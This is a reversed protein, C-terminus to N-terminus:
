TFGVPLLVLCPVNSPQEGSHGPLDSSAHPLTRRLHIAAVPALSVPRPFLVRRIPRSMGEHKAGPEGGDVGNM